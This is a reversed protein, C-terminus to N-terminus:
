PRHPEQETLQSRPRGVILTNSANDYNVQDDSIELGIGTFIEDLHSFYLDELGEIGDATITAILETDTTTINGKAALGKSELQKKIQFLARKRIKADVGAADFFFKMPGLGVSPANKVSLALQKLRGDAGEMVLLKNMAIRTCMAIDDMVLNKQTQATKMAWSADGVLKTAGNALNKFSLAVSCCMERTKPDFGLMNVRYSLVITDPQRVRVADLLDRDVVFQNADPDFRVGVLTGNSSLFKEYDPRNELLQVDLGLTDVKKALADRINRQFLTYNQLFFKAGGADTGFAEALDMSELSPPEEMVVIQIPGNATTQVPCVLWGYVEAIDITAMGEVTLQGRTADLQEWSADLEKWDEIFKAYESLAEDIIREDLTSNQKLLYNQVALKMAKETVEKKLPFSNQPATGSVKVHIQNDAALVSVVAGFVTLLAPLIRKM